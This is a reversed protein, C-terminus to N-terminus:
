GHTSRELGEFAVDSMVDGLGALRGSSKSLRRSEQCGGGSPSQVWPFTTRSPTPEPSHLMPPNTRIM